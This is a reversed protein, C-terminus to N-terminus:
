KSEGTEVALIAARFKDGNRHLSILGIGEFAEAILANRTGTERQKAWEREWQERQENRKAAIYKPDHIKCYWKNEREVVAKRKCNRYKPWFGGDSVRESCQESM